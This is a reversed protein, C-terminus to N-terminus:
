PSMIASYQNWMYASNTNFGTNWFENGGEVWVKISPNLVSNFRTFWATLAADTMMPPMCVWVPRNLRNSLEAMEEPICGFGATSSKSITNNGANYSVGYESPTFSGIPQIDTPNEVWSEMPRTWALLRIPAETNASRAYNIFNSSFANNALIDAEDEIHFLKVQGVDLNIASALSNRNFVNISLSAASNWRIGEQNITADGVPGSYDFEIRMPLGQNAVAVRDSPSYGANTLTLSPTTSPSLEQSNVVVGVSYDAPATIVYRGPRPKGYPTTSRICPISLSNLPTLLPWGSPASLANNPFLGRRLLNAEIGANTYYRPLGINLGYKINDLATSLVRSASVIATLQFSRIM